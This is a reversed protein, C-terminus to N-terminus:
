SPKAAKLKRRKNRRASCNTGPSSHTNAMPFTRPTSRIRAWPRRMPAISVASYPNDLVVIWAYMWPHVDCKVKFTEVAKFPEIKKEGITPQGFNMANNDISLTHVNHLFPDSNKVLLPQGVELAVVHPTYVCGVQDLVAAESPVKGLTKGEPTKVYVVVNALEGKAGAVVKEEFAPGKHNKAYDPLIKIVAIEHMEPVKGTVTVKGTVQGFAMTSMGASLALACMVRSLKM